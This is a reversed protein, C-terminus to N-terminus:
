LNGILIGTLFVLIGGLVVQFIAQLLPTDMYRKRIWAIVGLEIAVVAVAVWLALYFVPLLFPLTHGIGGFTTMIGCVGGRMWPRGRGSLVGDDSLAEAFGMSIGAGISAAMGVLFATQSNHTAFAAAFVPALTSVSGDMLGALGPQVIQLVFIRRKLERDHSSTVLSGKSANEEDGVVRASHPITSPRESSLFGYVCMLKRLESEQRQRMTLLISAAEPSESRIRDALESCARAHEVQLAIAAAFPDTKSLSELSNTM